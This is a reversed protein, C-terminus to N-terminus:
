FCREARLIFRLFLTHTFTLSQQMIYKKLFGISCNLILLNLTVASVSSKMGEVKINTQKAPKSNVGNKVRNM